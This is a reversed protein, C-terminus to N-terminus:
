DIAGEKGEGWLDIQWMLKQRNESKCVDGLDTLGQVGGWPRVTRKSQEAVLGKIESFSIKIMGM